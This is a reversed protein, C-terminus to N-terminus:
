RSPWCRRRDRGRRQPCDRRHDDAAPDAVLTATSRADVAGHAELVAALSMLSLPLPQKGPTTSLPNFLVIMAGGVLRVGGARPAAARARRARRLRWALRDARRCSSRGCRRAARRDRWAARVDSLRRGAARRRRLRVRCSTGCSDRRGDRAGDRDARFMPSDMVVLTGGPALMRHAGRSRRRPTRARLAALRQVRRSRVAGACVAARRLRGPGRSRRDPLPAGRRPRGGRRRDCRRRRRPPRARCVTRCGAAAPASISCTCRSRVPPSCTASCITTPRAGSGGNAPTRITRRSRDAAARYYDPAASAGAKASACPATSARRVARAARRAGGDPVAVRRRAREFSRARLPACRVRRRRGRRADTAASRVPSARCGCPEPRGCCSSFTIAATACCRGARRVSRRPAAAARRARPHRAPSRRCIRRRRSCARARAAVVRTFGAAAFIREFERPRTTGRGCRGARSRCRCWVARPVPDRRARCDGRASICRSRGRSLRPRDGVRGARRGAAASRRDARAAAALDAVCNLPGFNSYRPTSRSRRAAPSRTRPHRSAARRRSRRRRRGRVRTRAEDVM